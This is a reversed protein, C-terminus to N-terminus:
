PLPPIPCAAYTHTMWTVRGSLDGEMESGLYHSTVGSIPHCTLLLVYLSRDIESWVGNVLKVKNGSDLKGDADNSIWILYWHASWGESRNSVVLEACWVACTRAWHEVSSARERGSRGDMWGDHVSGGLWWVLYRLM